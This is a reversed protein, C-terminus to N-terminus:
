SALRDNAALARREYVAIIEAIVDLSPPYQGCTVAIAPWLEPDMEDRLYAAVAAADLHPHYGFKEVVEDLFDVIAVLKRVQALEKYPNHTKM